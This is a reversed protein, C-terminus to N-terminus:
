IVKSLKTLLDKCKAKLDSESTSGLAGPSYKFLEMNELFTFTEKTLDDDVNKQKLAEKIDMPSLGAEQLNLRDSIFGKLVSDLIEMSESTQLEIVSNLRDQAKKMAKNKRVLVPNSGITKQHTKIAIAIIFLLLSILNIVIFTGNQYFRTNAKRWNVKGKVIYRIDQDLIKIEEKNLGSNYSVMNKDENVTVDFKHSRLTQYKQKTPDFYTFDISPITLTGAKHPILVYEYTASGRVKTKKQNVKNVKPPFVEVYDPLVPQPFDVANINGFGTVNYKLTIAKDRSIEMTDIDGTVRVNEMVPPMIDPDHFTPLPKVDISLPSAIVRKVTTRDFMSTGFFSDDFFSDFQSNSNRKKKPLVVECQTIMPDIELKGSETPFLAIRKIVASYFEEGDIVIKSSQPNKIEKLEEVWFGKAEPLKETGYNTIQMNYVLKYEIIVQEGLYVSKKSPVADLFIRGKGSTEIKGQQTQANQNNQNNQNGSSYRGKTVKAVVRDASYKKKKYQVSFGNIILEGEAKPQLQWTYSIKSTMKGNVFQFNSSQFPGNIVLFNKGQPEPLHKIKNTGDVDVTYSLIDNLTINSSNVSASITIDDAIALSLLISITLLLKWLNQINM